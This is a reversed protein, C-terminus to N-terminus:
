LKFIGHMYCWTEVVGTAQGENRAQMSVHGSTAFLAAAIYRYLSIYRSM